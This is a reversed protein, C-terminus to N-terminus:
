SSRHPDRGAPDTPPGAPDTPVPDTPEARSSRHPDVRQIPPTCGMAEAAGPHMRWLQAAEASRGTPADGRRGNAPPLDPQSLVVPKQGDGGTATQPGALGRRIRGTAALPLGTESHSHGDRAQRLRALPPKHRHETQGKAASSPAALPFAPRALAAFSDRCFSPLHHALVILRSLARRVRRAGGRSAQSRCRCDL